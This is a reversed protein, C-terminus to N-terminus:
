TLANRLNKACTGVIDCRASLYLLLKNYESDSINYDDRVKLIANIIRDTDNKNMEVVRDLYKEIRDLPNSSQGHFPSRIYLILSPVFVLIAVLAIIVGGSIWAGSIFMLTNILFMIRWKLTLQKIRMKHQNLISQMKITDDHPFILATEKFAVKQIFYAFGLPIFSGLAIIIGLWELLTLEM